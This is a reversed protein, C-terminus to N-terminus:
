LSGFSSSINTESSNELLAVVSRPSISKERRMNWRQVTSIGADGRRCVVESRLSTHSDNCACGRKVNERFAFYAILLPGAEIFKVRVVVILRASYREEKVMEAEIVKNEFKKRGHLFQLGKYLRRLRRACYQRNVWIGVREVPCGWGLKKRRALEVFLLPRRTSAGRVFHDITYRVSTLWKVGFISVNVRAVLKWPAKFSRRTRADGPHFMPIACRYRGYDGHRLGHQAQASKIHQLLNFSCVRLPAPTATDEMAVDSM